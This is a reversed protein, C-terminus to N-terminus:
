EGFPNRYVDKFPNTKTEEFPNTKAKYPNTQPIKEAPNQIKEYIQGGLGSPTEKKVEEKFPATKKQYIYFGALILIAFVIVGSIIIIKKKDGVSPMVKIIDWFGIDLM